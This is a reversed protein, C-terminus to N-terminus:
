CHKNHHGNSPTNNFAGALLQTSNHADSRLRFIEQSSNTSKTVHKIVGQQLSHSCPQSCLAHLQPKLGEPLVTYAALYLRSGAGTNPVGRVTSVDRTSSWPPKGVKTNNSAWAQGKM